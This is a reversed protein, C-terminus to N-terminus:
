NVQDQCRKKLFARLFSFEKLIFNLYATIKITIAFEIVQFLSKSNDGRKEKGWRIEGIFYRSQLIEEGETSRSSCRESFCLKSFLLYFVLNFNACNLINTFFLFLFPRGLFLLNFCKKDSIRKGFFINWQPTIGNKIKRFVWKRWFFVNNECKM